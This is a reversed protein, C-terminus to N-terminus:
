RAERAFSHTPDALPLRLSVPFREIDADSPSYGPAFLKDIVPFFYSFVSHSPGPQSAAFAFCRACREPLAAENANAILERMAADAHLAKLPELYAPPYCDDDLTSPLPERIFAAHTKASEKAKCLLLPPRACRM